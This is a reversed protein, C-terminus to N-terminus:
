LIRNIKLPILILCFNVNANFLSCRFSVENVNSHGYFKRAATIACLFLCLWSVSSLIVSIANYARLKFILLEFMM